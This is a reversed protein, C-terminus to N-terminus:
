GLYAAALFYGLSLTSVAAIVTATTFLTKGGRRLFMGAPVAVALAILIILPGVIFGVAALTEPGFGQVIFRVGLIFALVAPVLVIWALVRAWVPSWSGSPNRRM